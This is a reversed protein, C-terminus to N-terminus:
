DKCVAARWSFITPLEPIFGLHILNYGALVPGSRDNRNGLHTPERHLPRPLPDNVALGATNAIIALGPIEISYSKHRQIFQPILGGFPAGILLTVM